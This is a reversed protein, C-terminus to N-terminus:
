MKDSKREREPGGVSVKMRDKSGRSIIRMESCKCASKQMSSIEIPFQRKLFM